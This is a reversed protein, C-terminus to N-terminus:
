VPLLVVGAGGRPLLVGDCRAVGGLDEREGDVGRGLEL